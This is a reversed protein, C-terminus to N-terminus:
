KFSTTYTTNLDKLLLVSVVSYFYELVLLLGASLITDLFHRELISLLLVRYLFIGILIKKNKFSKRKQTKELIAM